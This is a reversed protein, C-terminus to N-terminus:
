ESFSHPERKQNLTAGGYFSTNKFLNNPLISERKAYPLFLIVLSPPAVLLLFFIEGTERRPARLQFIKKILSNPLTEISDPTRLWNLLGPLGVRFWRSSWVIFHANWNGNCCALMNAPKNHSNKFTPHLTQSM